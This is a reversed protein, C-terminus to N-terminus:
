CPSLAHNCAGSAEPGLGEGRDCCLSSVAKAAICPLTAPQDRYLQELTNRAQEATAKAGATDGALRQMFALALQDDAKDYESAFHFQALRAQLLRVAEGYNRELRLQTIKIAFAIM